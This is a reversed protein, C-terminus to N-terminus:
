INPKQPIFSKGKWKDLKINKKSKKIIDIFSQPNERLLNIQNFIYKSFKDLPKGNPDIYKKSKYYYNNNNSLYDNEAEINKIQKKDEATLEDNLFEPKQCQCGM